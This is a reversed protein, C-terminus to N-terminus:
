ALTVTAAGFLPAGEPAKAEVRVHDGRQLWPTRPEGQEAKEAERRDHLSAYGLSGDTPTLVPGAVLTGAHVQRHRALERLWVGACARTDRGADALGFKRGNVQVQVQAQLRGAAWGTGAEDPTCLVPAFSTTWPRRMADRDVVALECALGLLRVGELGTEASAGAAIDATVVVLRAGFDAGDFGHPVAAEDAVGLLGDPAREHLRLGQGQGEQDAAVYRSARPLPAMALAPDFPFAHRARGQNLADYLDQLQPSLFNWDDLVQQLRTAIGTAYHAMSLDRSVVVLHGDRSGDKYTALKM